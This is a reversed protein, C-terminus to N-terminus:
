VRVELDAIEGDIKETHYDNNIRVEFNRRKCETEIGEIDILAQTHLFYFKYHFFPQSLIDSLLSHLSLLPFKIVDGDM